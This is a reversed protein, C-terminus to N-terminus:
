LEERFFKNVANKFENLETETRGAREMGKIIRKSKQRKNLECNLVMDILEKVTLNNYDVRSSNQEPKETSETYIEVTPTIKKPKRGRKGGVKKIPKNVSPKRGRKSKERYLQHKQKEIFEDLDDYRYQSINELFKNLQFPFFKLVQVVYNYALKKNQSTYNTIYKDTLQSLTKNHFMYKEMFELSKLIIRYENECNYKEVLEDINTPLSERIDTLVQSPPMNYDGFLSDAINPDKTVFYKELSDNYTNVQKKINGFQNSFENLPKTHEQHAVLDGKNLYQNFDVYFRNLVDIKGECTSLQLKLANNEEELQAVRETLKKILDIYYEINSM